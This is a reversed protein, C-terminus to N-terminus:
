AAAPAEVQKPATGIAITRPKLREPVSRILTTYTTAIGRLAPSRSLKASAGILGIAMAAAMSVLGLKITTWAGSLILPGYGDFFM